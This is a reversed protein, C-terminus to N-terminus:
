KLRSWFLMLWTVTAVSAAAPCSHRLVVFAPLHTQHEKLTKVWYDAFNRRNRSTLTKVGELHNASLHILLVYDNYPYYNIPAFITECQTWSSSVTFVYIWSCQTLCWDEARCSNLTRARELFVERFSLSFSSSLLRFIINLQSSIVWDHIQLTPWLIVLRELLQIYQSSDIVLSKPYKFM